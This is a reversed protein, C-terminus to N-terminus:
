CLTRRGALSHNAHLHGEALLLDGVHQAILGLLYVADASGTQEALMRHCLREATTMDGARFLRYAEDRLGDVSSTM